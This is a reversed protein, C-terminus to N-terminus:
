KDEEMTFFKSITSWFKKAESGEVFVTQGADTMVLISSVNKAELNELKSM